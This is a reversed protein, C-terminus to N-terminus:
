YELKWMYRRQSLPHDRVISLQEAYVRLVGTIVMPSFYEAVSSPVFNSLGFDKADIVTTKADFRNLFDLARSDMKRTRGDNMLLLFPVDKEVIEFPGHFFEGDHFSGSNIWQMEMLLCISFSYAVKQTAGSSMVLYCTFGQISRCISKCTHSFLICCRRNSGYINESGKVMDEYHDYGEYQNLVEVALMLINNMKELKAAYDKEFGHVIVYDANKQLRHIEMM